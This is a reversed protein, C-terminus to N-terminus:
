SDASEGWIFEAIVSNGNGYYSVNECITKVLAIGRGSHSYNTALGSLTGEHDFGPGTDTVKITLRGGEEFPVHEFDFRISGERLEALRQQRMAYYQSFGEVNQKLSSELGLLGHELANNFLEALVTYLPERYGDLGQLETVVHMLVPIPDVIRLTDGSLELSSQWVMPLSKRTEKAPEAAFQEPDPQECRIEILTTDDAQEGGKRWANVSKGIEDFLDDPDGEATFLKELGEQGFMEGDPNSAEIVGDSYIYIREDESINLRVPQCQLNDMVGLPISHSPIRSRLGTGPKYILADPVGGNWAFVSEGGAKFDLFCAAFFVETPLSARLKRNIETVIAALSFGKSAMGYFVEAVPIAGVAAPLGHGTFDGLMVYLSGSPTRTALLLDGNFISVPSLMYRINDLDLCGKPIIKAFVREAVQHEHELRSQHGAIEDRQYRMTAYVSRIRLMADIKAKLIVRNYPKVLFDDGGCEVCKALAKEDTVATLFIVPVFREAGRSKILKTAEYGDMVPMMVDMLVLDPKESDFIDVAEQGDNAELVAYGERKLIANLLVRNIRDDDVLLVKIPGESEIPLIEPEGTM